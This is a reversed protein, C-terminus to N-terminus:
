EINVCLGELYNWQHKRTEHSDVAGWPVTVDYGNTILSELTSGVCYETNVGCVTVKTPDLGNKKFCIRLSHYANDQAKQARYVKRYGGIAAKVWPVTDGEGKYEVLVIPKRSKKAKDIQKVVHKRLRRLRGQPFSTRPALFFKQLDIIVLM